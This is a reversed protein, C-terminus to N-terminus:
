LRIPSVVVRLGYHGPRVDPISWLRCACRALRRSLYFSGGRLVRLVGSPAKVNERDVGPKYPYKFDPGGWSKGWLSRTWEWVNGSLDLVGYPSTGRPFCGVATNSGIGTESVNAKDPDFGNSWPYVRRPDPNDSLIPTEPAPRLGKCPAERGTPSLIVSTASIQLGGRAAKEWEAESSLTVRWDGSRLLGRLPEPTGDWARLRTNLWDAYALADYWSVWVVPHNPVGRLSDPDSPRHGSEEVFARFQAVTVPYRAIYFDPLNVEHEPQEDSSAERDKRPDSGMRFPGAPIKVFGLLPETPLFWADPNFRPDSLRALARGAEAREPAALDSDLLRVLRPLLRELYARGGDPTDSDREVTDRGALVAMEGSWLVARQGRADAPESAPCLRYALDLLSNTGRRNYFLEEAGLLAALNWTDGEGARVLFARAMDRQSVLYCGALYEQFTRHPFAYAMPHAPDGGRGILLGARQDVYDLFEAALGAAGLYEPAELIVLAQGRFLDAAEVRGQGLRHAEYALREVAARLRLDDKLFGTLADSATLGREGTKRKQWRRLLVDVVLDYLRVRERPLGIEKQHIIAMATLMMPNSALERLEPTLAAGALGEARQKAQEADVRGLEKQAQYWAHAFRRIKDEDFPALTHAQFGPLVAEGVYSRVRCTVILRAPNYQRIVAAVAQRVCGRQAQSVEDLGDLVLLCRGDRLAQGLPKGFDAADLLGLDAVVQACVAAALAAQQREAALGGLDLCELRPALDRLTVLIPLLDAACGPPPQTQGLHVAALWGLLMRVFTSKGAGPDGLLALRPSNGAVDMASLPRSDEGREFLLRSPRAKKEEETLPIRTTTDLEIYVQDLTIEQDSTEEGGLAALPLAQCYRRLRELYRTRAQERRRAAAQGPDPSVVKLEIDGAREVKLATVEGGAVTGVEQKVEVQVPSPPPRPIQAGCNPCFRAEEPVRTYGCAPCNM